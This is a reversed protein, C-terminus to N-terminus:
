PAAGPDTAIHPTAFTEGENYLAIKTLSGVLGDVELGYKAQIERVIERTQDDYEPTMAVDAFGIDHIVEKLALLSQANHNFPITGEISRFDKWPIYAVGAWFWGLAEPALVILRDAGSSASAHLTVADPGITAVTLYRPFPNDPLHLELIAPLNLRKLLGLDADVRRVLLDANAAGHDFFAEDNDIAELSGTVVSGIQWRALAAKLAAHRSARPSITLLLAELERRSEAVPDLNPVVTAAPEPAVVPVPGAGGAAPPPPAAEAIAIPSDPLTASPQPAEDPADGDAATDSATAAGGHEIAPVMRSTRGGSYLLYGTVLVVAAATALAGLAAGSTGRRKVEGMGALEQIADRAIKGSIRSRNLSYATLLARDCAINILRPIGASYRHIARYAAHDFRIGSKTSAVSIRHQIYDRTEKLSLPSLWCSLTIRQGLQRMDHADLVDALEPQGVLVIQLLKDVTTELNSLLRLQELVEKSLNQAEDIVLIVNRGAARRDILFRNLYDILDKTNDPASDIGFEDNIAKLLQIADLKPNFIFAAEVTEDLHELFTRCLTTKGTGVEGIITVFGDGQAVAYTLHALAEEHCRSLFLYAPNPVLKFPRERLDFFRQYM